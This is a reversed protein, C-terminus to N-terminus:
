HNLTWSLLPLGVAAKWWGKATALPHPFYNHDKVKKEVTKKQKKKKRTKISIM